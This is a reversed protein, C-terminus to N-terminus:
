SHNFSHLYCMFRHLKVYIFADVAYSSLKTVINGNNKNRTVHPVLSKLARLNKWAIHM